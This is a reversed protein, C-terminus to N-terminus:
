LKMKMKMQLRNAKAEEAPKVKKYLKIRM